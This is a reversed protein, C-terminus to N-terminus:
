SLTKDLADAADQLLMVVDDAYMQGVRAEAILAELKAAFEEPTMKQWKATQPDGVRLAICPGAICITTACLRKGEGRGGRWCRNTCRGTGSKSSAHRRTPAAKMDCFMLICVAM